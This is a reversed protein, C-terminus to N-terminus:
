ALCMSLCTDDNWVLCSERCERESVAGQGKTWLSSPCASSGDTGVDALGGECFNHAPCLHPQSNAQQQPDAWRWGPLLVALLTHLCCCAHAYSQNSCSVKFCARRSPKAAFCRVNEHTLLSCVRSSSGGNNRPVRVMLLLAFPNDCHTNTQQLQPVRSTTSSVPSCRSRDM